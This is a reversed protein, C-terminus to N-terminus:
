RGPPTVRRCTCCLISWGIADSRRRFSSGPACTIPSVTLYSSVLVPHYRKTALCVRRPALGFLSADVPSGTETKLRWKGIADFNELAFGLPDMQSHCTSCVPNKRHQELRERVSAPKNGEGRDPLAPVNPPPPPPPTGLVNELVWKGRLVPSTRNPYSTVTLLSGHGLLGASRDDSFTVRRFRESAM